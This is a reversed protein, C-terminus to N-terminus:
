EYKGNLRVYGKYTYIDDKLEFDFRIKVMDKCNSADLIFFTDDTARM